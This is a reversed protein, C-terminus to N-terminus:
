KTSDVEAIFRVFGELLEAFRQYQIANAWELAPRIAGGGRDLTGEVEPAPLLWTSNIECQITPVGMGSVWKTITQNKSAGFFDQSFNALGEEQLRSALVELLTSQGLLSRGNMTGFDLDYPHAPSSAHLDLVVAPRQREVLLKVERKFANEDYYNPDSPSALTTVVVTAHAVRNLMMALSGTGADAPKLKGDRMQATAHGATVLVRSSGGLVRLWSAGSAPLSYYDRSLDAEYQAAIKVEDVDILSTRFLKSALRGSTQKGALPAAPPEAVCGVSVVALAVGLLVGRTTCVSPTTPCRVSWDGAEGLRARLFGSRM